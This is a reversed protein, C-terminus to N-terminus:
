TSELKKIREKLEAVEAEKSTVTELHKISAEIPKGVVVKAEGDVIKTTCAKIHGASILSMFVQISEEEITYDTWGIQVVAVTSM